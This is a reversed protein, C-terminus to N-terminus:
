KSKLRRAIEQRAKVSCFESDVKKMFRRIVARRKTPEDFDASHEGLLYDCALMGYVLVDHPVKLNNDVLLALLMQWEIALDENWKLQRRSSKGVRKGSFPARMKVFIRPIGRIFDRRYREPIITKRGMWDWIIDHRINTAWNIFDYHCTQTGDGDYLGHGSWGM